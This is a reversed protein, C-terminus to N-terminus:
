APPVPMATTPYGQAVRYDPLADATKYLTPRQGGEQMIPPPRVASKEYGMDHMIRSMTTTAPPRIGQERLLQALRWSSVWGGCFGVREEEVARKIAQEIPGHSEAIAEATSSTEPARHCAGAPNLEAPIAYNKLYYAIHAFGGGDGWAWLSPFYDGGMGDRALDAAEQQATYFVAYRRDDKTKIIGNKHNTAFIWNTRNEVMRKERGMPRVEVERNTVLTKLREQVERRGEMHVEEVIILLKNELWANFKEGIEQAEPKHVYKPGVAYRVASMLFTKGNGQTGQIVPTWQFKRGPYQVVAAMYAILIARDREVPLMRALLDLFRSVDGPVMDVKAPVYTNVNGDELITGSPLDPRFCTDVAQPFQVCKNQTLAKIPEDTPKTGDPMMQFLYRGFSRNYSEAGLMRGDPLLVKNANQVYIHGAFYDQMEAATMYVGAATAAQTVTPQPPVRDYVKQCLRAANQITDRRYDERKEYKERMLASRRFLRDMRPMDKGTWFALHTMLAADASSRDWATPDGNFAPYSRALVLADANWLQAVTAKMGFAAGAGGTSRMMMAILADDDAPGTYTPDVGEPLEGLHERQPVVRLLQDTWDVDRAEGGIPAWGHPGFAIFRADTYFELWGDWKNRRDKLRSPDCRGLIHLGTGSQSVEGWAGSFSLFIAQADARWSGDPKQCKDLDLFFLGDEARLAFAVPKGTAAATAYDTHNAQDHADVITGEPLCPVKRGDIMRWNLFRNPLGPIM